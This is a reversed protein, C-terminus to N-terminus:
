DGVDTNLGRVDCGTVTFYYLLACNFAIERAENESAEGWLPLWDGMVSEAGWRQSEVKLM